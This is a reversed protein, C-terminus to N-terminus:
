AHALGRRNKFWNPFNYYTVGDLQNLIKRPLGSSQKYFFSTGSKECLAKIGYAWSNDDQTYDKKNSSEGGYILWDIKELNATEHIPGCAPEYSVFRLGGWEPVARLDDMRYLYDASEVTVGLHVHQYDGNYFDIPLMAQINESRKTLVLFQLNKAEKILQWADERMQNLDSHSEFFDSMSSVFVKIEIGNKKAKTNLAKIMKPTGKIRTRLTGVGWGAKKRRKNIKEAYCIRCGQSVKACGWWFNATADTWKIGTKQGM